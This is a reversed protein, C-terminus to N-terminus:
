LSNYFDESSSGAPTTSGAASGGAKFQQSAGGAAWGWGVKRTKSQKTAEDIYTETKLGGGLAEDITANLVNPFQSKVRNWIEGWPKGAELEKKLKDILAWFKTDQTTTLGTTTESTGPTSAPISSQSIKEAYVKQVELLPATSLYNLNLGNEAASIILDYKEAEDKQATALNSKLNNYTNTWVSKEEPSFLQYLDQYANLSWEIDAVQQEQDYTTLKVLQSATNKANSYAGSLLELELSKANQKIGIAAIQRNFDKTIRNDEVAGQDITIGTREGALDLAAQKKTELDAIQKNYDSVETILGGIKKFSEPTMGMESYVQLTAENMLETGSKQNAAVTDRNLIRDFLGQKDAAANPNQPQAALADLRAQIQSVSSEAGNLTSAIPASDYASPLAPANNTNIEKVASAPPVIGTPSPLTIPSQYTPTAPADPTKLNAGAYIKNINTINPNLSQLVGVNTNLTKAIGSLTDGSQITYDAM